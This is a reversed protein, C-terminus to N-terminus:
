PQAQLLRDIEQKAAALTEAASEQATVRGYPIDRHLFGLLRV